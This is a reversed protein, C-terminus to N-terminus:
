FRRGLLELLNEIKIKWHLFLERSHKTACDNSCFSSMAPVFGEKCHRCKPM